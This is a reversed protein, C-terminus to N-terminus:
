KKAEEFLLKQLERKQFIDFSNRGLKKIYEELAKKSRTNLVQMFGVRLRKNNIDVFHNTAILKKGYFISIQEEERYPYKRYGTRELITRKYIMLNKM